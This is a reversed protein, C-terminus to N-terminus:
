YNFHAIEFLPNERDILKEELSYNIRLFTLATLFGEIKDLIHDHYYDGFLIAKNTETNILAHGDLYEKNTVHLLKM